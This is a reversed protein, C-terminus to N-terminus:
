QMIINTLKLRINKEDIGKLIKAQEWFKGTLLKAKIYYSSGFSFGFRPISLPNDRKTFNNSKTSFAIKCNISNLTDIERQGFDLHPIGNPFAFYYIEHGLINKLQLFSDVIEKNSTEDSENALIPHNNTHAGIIVLGDKDIEILQETKLNQADSEISGFLIEYQDIIQRIDEIRQTKLIVNLPYPNLYKLDVQLYKSIIIKLNVPNFNRIEQFWFNKEESCILPSVFLTAPVNMIKLIPYITEYFSMDGDDITIHCANKYSKNEYYYSELEHISILNYKKKLISLVEGFWNADNVDHFNIIKNM